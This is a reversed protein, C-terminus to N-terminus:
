KVGVSVTNGKIIDERLYHVGKFLTRDFGKELM